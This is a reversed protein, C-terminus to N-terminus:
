STAETVTALAPASIARSPRGTSSSVEVQPRGSTPTWASALSTAVPWTRMASTPLRQEGAEASRQAPQEAAARQIRACPV